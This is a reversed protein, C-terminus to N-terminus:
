IIKKNFFELRVYGSSIPWSICLLIPKCSVSMYFNWVVGGSWSVSWSSSRLVIQTITWQLGSKELQSLFHVTCWRVLWIWRVTVSLNIQGHDRLGRMLVQVKHHRPTFCHWLTPFPSWFTERKIEETVRKDELISQHSHLTNMRIKVNESVWPFSVTKVLLVVQVTLNQSHGIIM